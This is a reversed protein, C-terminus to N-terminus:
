RLVFVLFLKIVQKCFFDRLREDLGVMVCTARKRTAVRFHRTRIEFHASMPKLRFRPLHIRRHNVEVRTVLCCFDEYKKEDTSTLCLTLTTRVIDLFSSPLPLSSHYCRWAKSDVSIAFRAACVAAASAASSSLMRSSSLALFYSELFPAFNEVERSQSEIAPVMSFLMLVMM